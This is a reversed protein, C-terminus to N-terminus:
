DWEHENAKLAAALVKNGLLRQWLLHMAESWSKGRATVFCDRPFFILFSLMWPLALGTAKEQRHLEGCPSCSIVDRVLLRPPCVRALRPVPLRRRHRAACLIALFALALMLAVVATAAPSVAEKPQLLIVPAASGSSPMASPVTSAPADTLQVSPVRTRRINPAGTPQLMPVGSVMTRPTTPARSTPSKSAPARSAAESPARSPTRTSNPARTPTRTRTPKATPSRTPAVTPTPTQNASPTYTWPDSTLAFSVQYGAAVAALQHLASLTAPISDLRRPTHEYASGSSLPRGLQGHENSGWTYISGAATLAVSHEEGAAISVVPGDLADRPIPVPLKFGDANTRIDSDYVGLQGKSNSGFVLVEGDSALALTHYAGCVITTIGHSDLSNVRQPSHQRDVGDALGLQGFSNGGWAYVQIALCGAFGTRGM